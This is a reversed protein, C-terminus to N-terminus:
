LGVLILEYIYGGYTKDRRGRCMIKVKWSTQEYLEQVERSRGTSWCGGTILIKRIKATSLSIGQEELEKKFVALSSHNAKVGPIWDEGGPRSDEERDDYTDGYLTCIYAVYEATPTNPTRLDQKKPEVTKRM